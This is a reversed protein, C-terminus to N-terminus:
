ILSLSLGVAVMLTSLCTLTILGVFMSYGDDDSAREVRRARNRKM